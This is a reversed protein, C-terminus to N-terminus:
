SIKIKKSEKSKIKDKAWLLVDTDIEIFEDKGNDCYVPLTRVTQIGDDLDHYAVVLHKINNILVSKYIHVHLWYSRTGVIVKAKYNEGDEFSSTDEEKAFRHWVDDSGLYEYGDFLGKLHVTSIGLDILNRHYNFGTILYLCERDPETNKIPRTRISDGVTLGTVQAFEYINQLPRLM